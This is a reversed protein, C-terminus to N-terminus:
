YEVFNFSLSSPGGSGHCLVQGLPHASDYGILTATHLGKLGEVAGFDFVVTGDDQWYIQSTPSNDSIDIEVGSGNFSCVMRTVGELPLPIVVDDADKVEIQVTASNDRGIHVHETIAM